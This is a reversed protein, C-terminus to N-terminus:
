HLNLHVNIELDCNVVTGCLIVLTTTLQVIISFRSGIVITMTFNIKFDHFINLVLFLQIISVEYNISIVSM